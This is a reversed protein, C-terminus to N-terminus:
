DGYWAWTPAVTYTLTITQLAPVRFWGSTQGTNVGGLAVNSVTGGTVLVMCDVTRDNQQATGSAPVGPAALSGLPNYGSNGRWISKQIMAPSSVPSGGSFVNSQVDLGQWYNPSAVSAAVTGAGSGVPTAFHNDRVLLQGHTSLNDLDYQSAAGSTNNQDFQCGQVIVSGNSADDNYQLGHGQNYYLDCGLIRTHAVATLALGVTGKQILLGELHIHDNSHVSGKDLVVCPAAPAAGGLDCNQIYMFACGTIHISSGAQSYGQCNTMVNDTVENFQYCDGAQCNDAVLNSWLLGGSRDTGPQLSAARYGYAGQRALCNSMQHYGIYGSSGTLLQLAWGNLYAFEVGAILTDQVDSNLQIGDCAPNNSYTTSQGSLFLDRITLRKLSAGGAYLILAAGAFAPGPLLMSAKGYGLITMNTAAPVTIPADLLYAGPPILLAADGVAAVAALARNIAAADYTSGNGTAGYDLVNFIPEQEQTGRYDRGSEPGLPAPTPLQDTGHFTNPTSAPFPSSM